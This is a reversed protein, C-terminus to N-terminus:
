LCHSTWRAPCPSPWLHARRLVSPSRAVRQQGQVPMGKGHRLTRKGQPVTQKGHRIAIVEMRFWPRSSRTMVKVRIAHPLFNTTPKGKGTVLLKQEPKQLPIRPRQLTMLWQDTLPMM